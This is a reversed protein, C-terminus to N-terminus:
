RIFTIHAPYSTILLFHPLFISLKLDNEDFELLEEIDISREMFIDLMHDLKNDILWQKTDVGDSEGQANQLTSAQQM